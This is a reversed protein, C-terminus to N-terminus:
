RKGERNLINRLANNLVEQVKLFVNDERLAVNHIHEDTSDNWVVHIWKHGRADLVVSLQIEPNM